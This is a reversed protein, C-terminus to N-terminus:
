SVSREDDTDIVTLKAVKRKQASYDFTNNFRAVYIM